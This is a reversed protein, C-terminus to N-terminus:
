PSIAGRSLSYPNSEGLLAALCISLSSSDHDRDLVQEVEEKVSPVGEILGSDKGNSGFRFGMEKVKQRGYEMASYIVQEAASEIAVIKRLTLGNGTDSTLEVEGAGDLSVQHRSRMSNAFEVFEAM